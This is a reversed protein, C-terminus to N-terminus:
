EKDFGAILEYMTSADAAKKLANVLEVNKCVRVITALLQLHIRPVRESGIIMFVLDVPADDIADFDVGDPIQAVVIIISDIDEGSAHPIAVGGGIGTSSMSEREMIKDILIKQREEAIVEKSILHDVILKCLSYKDEAAIGTLIMDKSLYEIIKM